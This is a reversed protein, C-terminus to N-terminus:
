QLRGEVIAVGADLLADVQAMDQAEAYVRVLPETGSPRMLLWADSAFCLKIGDRHDVECLEEDLPLFIDRYDCVDTGAVCHGAVFRQKVDESLRLDRRSYDLNGLIHLLDGVLTALSKGTQAMLEVLLLAMLLGDRELVHSPIGIGGSEEGGILVDGALMEGYVWKFGIPTTTLGLGLRQCQRKVLNSGSLTRVVRGSQGKNEVLHAILLTIIRHPNVFNGYEDGAGIRDADGDTILCADFGLSVTKELGSKIWPLIPEPHLGGFIPDLSGNVEAV